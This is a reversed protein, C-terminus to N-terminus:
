SSGRGRAPTRGSKKLFSPLNNGALSSESEEIYYIGTANLFPVEFQLHRSMDQQPKDIGLPVLADLVKKM